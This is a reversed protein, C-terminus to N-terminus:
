PNTIMGIRKGTYRPSYSEIEVDVRRSGSASSIGRAVRLSLGLRTSAALSSNTFCRRTM